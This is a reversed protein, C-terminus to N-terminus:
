ELYRRRRRLLLLFFPGGTLATVVGIPIEQPPIAMRAVIDALLLFIGGGLLALPLVRRADPGVILRVVHPVILGVFGILGSISVAAATALSALVILRRRVGRVDVGLQAAQDDDLQLVNLLRGHLLILAVAPLGYVAVIGAQKWGVGNFGGLLWGFITLFKQDDILFLVSMAAGSIYAIAVGALVLTTPLAMGDAHALQYGVAVALLAGLFAAPTLLGLGFLTLGFPLVIAVAVGLGAGSAVGILYPDALPNRFIAQYCAGAGALVAGVLLAALARPLRIRWIIADSAPSAESTWGPLLHGAVVDLVTGPAIRTPGLFVALLLVTCLLATAVALSLWWRARGTAEPQEAIEPELAAESTVPSASATRISSAPM